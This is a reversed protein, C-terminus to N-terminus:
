GYCVSHSCYMVVDMIDELLDVIFFAGKMNFIRSVEIDVIPDQNISSVEM